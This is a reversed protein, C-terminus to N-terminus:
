RPSDQYLRERLICQLVANPVLAHWADGVGNAVAERVKTSSVPHEGDRRGQVLEIHQAWGRAAGEPDRKGQVLDSLYQDQQHHSGWVDDTRYTVRLRHRDLFPALPTLTLTPPYYRPNLIRVLTDFGILYVQQPPAAPPAAYDDSAAIAQAKDHFYPFKTVGIDVIPPAPSALPAQELSDVCDHAFAAM